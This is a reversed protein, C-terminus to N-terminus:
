KFKSSLLEIIWDPAKIPKGNEKKVFVLNTSGEVLINSLENRVVYDFRIKVDPLKSVNVEITLLDDYHAPKKYRINLDLVPLMIGNEELEKYVIGINRLAEVRAVEFYSAYNGYYVFGMKDTEGYRVRLQHEYSYM